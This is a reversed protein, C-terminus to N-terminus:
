LRYSTGYYGWWLAVFRLTSSIIAYALYFAITMKNLFRTFVRFFPITSLTSVKTFLKYGYMQLFFIILLSFTPTPATASPSVGTCPTTKTSLRTPIHPPRSFCTTSSTKWPKPGTEPRVRSTTKRVELFSFSSYLSQRFALARFSKRLRKLFNHKYEDFKIAENNKFQRLRTALHFSYAFGVIIM